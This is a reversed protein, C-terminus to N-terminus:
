SSELDQRTHPEYGFNEKWKESNRSIMLGDQVWLLPAVRDDRTNPAPHSPRIVGHVLSTTRVALDHPGSEGVSPDLRAPRKALRHHSVLGACWSDSECM